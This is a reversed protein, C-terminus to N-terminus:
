GEYNTENYLKIVNFYYKCTKIGQKCNDLVKICGIPMQGCFTVIAEITSPSLEIPTTMTCFSFIRRRLLIIEESISTTFPVPPLCCWGFSHLLFSGEKRGDFLWLWDRSAVAFKDEEVFLVYLSIYPRNRSGNEETTLVCKQVEKRDLSWEQRGKLYNLIPLYINIADFPWHPLELFYEIKQLFLQCWLSIWNLDRHSTFQRKAMRTDFKECETQNWNTTKWKKIIWHVM